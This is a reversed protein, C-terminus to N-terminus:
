ITNGVYFSLKGEDWAFLLQLSIISHGLYWEEGSNNRRFRQPAAFNSAWHYLSCPPLLDRPERKWLTKIKEGMDAPVGARSSAYAPLKGDSFLWLFLSQSFHNGNKM